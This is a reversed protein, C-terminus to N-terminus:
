LIIDLISTFLNFITIGFMIKEELPLKDLRPINIDINKHGM